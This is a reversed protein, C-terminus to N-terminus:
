LRRHLWCCRRNKGCGANHTKTKTCWFAQKVALLLVTAFIPLRTPSRIDSQRHGKRVQEGQQLNVVPRAGEGDGVDCFNPVERSHYACCSGPPLQSIVAVFVGFAGGQGRVRGRLVCVSGWAQQWVGAQAAALKCGNWLGQTGQRQERPGPAERTDQPHRTSVAAIHQGRQLHPLAGGLQAAAVVAAADDGIAGSEAGLGVGAVAHIDAPHTASQGPQGPCAARGPRLM